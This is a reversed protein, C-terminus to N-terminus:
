YRYEGKHLIFILLTRLAGGGTLYWAAVIGNVNGNKKQLNDIYTNSCSNENTLTDYMPTGARRERQKECLHGNYIIYMGKIYTGQNGCSFQCFGM